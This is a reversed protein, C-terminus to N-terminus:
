KNKKAKRAEKRGKSNEKEGGLASLIRNIEKTKAGFTVEENLDIHWFHHAFAQRIYTSGTESFGLEFFIDPFNKHRIQPKIVDAYKNALVALDQPPTNEAPEPLLYKIELEIFAEPELKQHICEDKESHYISCVDGFLSLHTLIADWQFTLVAQYKSDPDANETTCYCTFTRTATSQEMDQEVAFVSLNSDVLSELLDGTIQEYTQM